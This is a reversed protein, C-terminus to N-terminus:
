SNIYSTSTYVYDNNVKAFTFKYKGGYGIFSNESLSEIKSSPVVLNQYTKGYNVGDFLLVYSYLLIEDSSSQWNYDKTYM